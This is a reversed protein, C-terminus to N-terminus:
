ADDIEFYLDPNSANYSKTKAHVLGFNNVISQVDKVDIVSDGNCDVYKLDVGFRSTDGWDLAPYGQWVSSPVDRIPGTQNFYLGISFLDYHNAVGDNNADGPWVLDCNALLSLAITDTDTCGLSDTVLVSYTGSTTATITQSTDGTSWLYSGGEYRGPDLLVGKSSCISTDNGLDIALTNIASIVSAITTQCGNADLVTINYNGYSMGSLDEVTQGSSWNFTYPSTGGSVNIDITGSSDSSCSVDSATSSITLSTPQTISASSNGNCGNIDTVTVEFTGAALNNATKNTDGNSWDYQYPATGNLASTTASGDNGGFCSVDVSSTTVSLIIGDQINVSNSGNCGSIDTAIITYIGNILSVANQTTQGNSWSYTYGPTGGFVSTQATGDNGGKCNVNTSDTIIVTPGGIDNLSISSTITCGNGDTVTLTYSGSTITYLTSSKSGNSWSYSYTSTGGTVTAIILGDATGCNADTITSSINLATPESITIADMALCGNGDTVSVSYTGMYISSLDETTTGNDWKYSYTTTGGSVILDISGSNDGYCLVNQASISLLLLSPETVTVTLLKQCNNLDTVTVYYTNASLNTIDQNTSGNSWQYTYGPTGGAAFLDISGTSNLYCDVNTTTASVVLSTPELVTTSASGSCNVTDVVTITHTGSPVNTASITTQGNNWSYSYPPTGGVVSADASGDSGGFCSVDVSDIYVTPGGIDNITVSLASWCAIEDTVTITYVGSAVSSISETTSGTNWKYSYSAGGGTATAIASGDSNGCNADSKTFSITIVAPETINVNNTITCGKADTVTVNYTNATVDTLDQTTVGNSWSYTYSPIGGFASLDISGSAGGNCVVNTGSVTTNIASPQYVTISTVSTCPAADIVTITYTGACLSSIDQSTIGNNWLYTYPAAGGTVSLDISGNCSGNCSVNTTIDSVIFSSGATVAKTITDSCGSSNTAILTSNYNGSNNYLHSPNQNTSSNGDGFDWYWATPSGTSADTFYVSDVGCVNVTSFDATPAGIIDISMVMTDNGCSAMAILTVNYTGPTTYTYYTYEETVSNGDGFDWFNNPHWSNNYFSVEQGVCIKGAPWVGIDAVPLQGYSITVPQSYFAINNCGDTVIVLPNYRGTDSYVHLPNRKTSTTSDGFDWFFSYPGSAYTTLDIAAGPCATEPNPYFTVYPSSINNIMVNASSTDSNGCLNTIILTVLYNGTDSYIHWPHDETANNGDGFDWSYNTILGTTNPTFSVTDGPCSPNPEAGPFGSPKANSNVSISLTDSASKGCYNTVTLVVTYTAGSPYIHWPQQTTSTNGDGFNWSYYAGGWGYFFVTDNPCVTTPSASATATPSLKSDINMSQISTDSNGCSNTTVLKVQYIAEAIYSHVPNATSSTDGDGFFWTLNEPNSTAQYFNVPEGPCAPNPFFSFNASASTANSVVVNRIATDSGCSNSTILSVTYTGVISFIHDPSILISTQTGDGFDWFPNSLDNSSNTFTVEDGPCISDKSASFSALPNPTINIIHSSLDSIGTSDYARLTVLFGGSYQFTHSTNVTSDTYGDGFDWDYSISGTSLNTFNVTLGECGNDVDVTFSSTLQASATNFLVFVAILVLSIRTFIKM